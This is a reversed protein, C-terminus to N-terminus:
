VRKLQILYFNISPIDMRVLKILIKNYVIVECTVRDMRFMEKFQDQTFTPIIREYYYRNRRKIRARHRIVNLHINPEILNQIINELNYIGNDEM